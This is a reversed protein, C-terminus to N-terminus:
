LWYEKKYDHQLLLQQFPIDGNIFRKYIEFFRDELFDSRRPVHMTFGTAVSLNLCTIKKDQINKQLIQELALFSTRGLSTRHIRRLVDLFLMKLPSKNAISKKNIFFSRTSFDVVSDNLYPPQILDYKDKKDFIKEIFGKNYFLIDCDSRFVYPSTAQEIAYLFAFIPTGSQCRVVNKLKFYKQSIYEVQGYDLDIFKIRSDLKRLANISEVDLTNTLDSQHLAKIRGEETKSDIIVLLESIHNGFVSLVGPIFVDLRSKDNLTSNTVFSFKQSM